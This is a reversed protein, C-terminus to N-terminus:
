FSVECCTSAEDGQQQHWGVGRYSTDKELHLAMESLSCTYVAQGQCSSPVKLCDSGISCQCNNQATPMPVARWCCGTACCVLLLAQMADLPEDDHRAQGTKSAARM